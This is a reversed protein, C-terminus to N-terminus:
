YFIKIKMVSRIDKDFKGRWYQCFNLEGLKHDYLRNEAGFNFGNTENPILCKRTIIFRYKILILETRFRMVIQDLYLHQIHM